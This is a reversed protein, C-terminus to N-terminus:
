GGIASMLRPVMVNHNGVTLSYEPKLGAAQKLKEGIFSDDKGNRMADKIDVFKDSLLCPRLKGDATLRLRNCTKCFHKSVPSIFGIDGKANKYRFTESVASKNTPLVPILSERRQLRQKIEPSLIQKKKDLMHPSSPMYEIFRIHLPLPMTLQAFDGFEHDNIGRLAVMNIKIPSFGMDLATMITDYVRHLRDLGAIQEFTERNLSDLSINLRKIGLDKLPKLYDSLKVGNTTISVDLIGPIAVLKELFPCLGKRMLPEGGTIRVKTIGMGAGIRVLRLIEEYSLIEAPHFNM